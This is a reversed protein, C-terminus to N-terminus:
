QSAATITVPNNGTPLAAPANYRVSTATGGMITGITSNGNTVTGALTGAVTWTLATNSTGTVSAMIGLTGGVTASAPSPPSTISVVLAAASMITMSVSASKTNDAVSTATINFTAPTPVSPPANYTVSLGSGTITGYTSNGNTVGN